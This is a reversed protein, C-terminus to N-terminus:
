KKAKDYLKELSPFIFASTKQIPNFFLSKDLTEKKALFNHYALDIQEEVLKNIDTSEKSAPTDQSHLRM